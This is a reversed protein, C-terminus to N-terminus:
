VHARGIKNPLLSNAIVIDLRKNTTSDFKKYDECTLNFNYEIESNSLGKDYVILSLSTFNSVLDYANFFFVNFDKNENANLITTEAIKEKKHSSYGMKYGSVSYNNSLLEWIVSSTNVFIYPYDGVKLSFIPLACTQVGTM